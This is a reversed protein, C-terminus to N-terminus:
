RRRYDSGENLITVAIEPDSFRSVIRESRRALDSIDQNSTLVTLLRARYRYDIIMELRAQEWDSGKEVGWDDLVLAPQKAVRDTVMEASPEGQEHQVYRRLHDMLEAVTWYCCLTGRLGLAIILAECLYTKGNGTGGYCLLLVKDTKGEGLARFALLAKETGTRRRWKAFTHELTFLHARRM